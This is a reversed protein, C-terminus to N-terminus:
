ERREVPVLAVAAELLGLILRQELLEMAVMIEKLRLYQLLTGLAAQEPQILRTM